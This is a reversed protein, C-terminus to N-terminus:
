TREALEPAFAFAWVIEQCGLNGVRTRGTNVLLHERKSLRSRATKLTAGRGRWRPETAAVCGVMEDDTLNGYIRFCELIATRASTGQRAAADRSTAPDSARIAGLDFLTDM